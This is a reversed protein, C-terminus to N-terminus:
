FCKQRLSLLNCTNGMDWAQPAPTLLPFSKQLTETINGQKGLPFLWEMISTYTHNSPKLRQLKVISIEQEEPIHITSRILFWLNKDQFTLYCLPNPLSSSSHTCCPEAPPISTALPFDERKKAISFVINCVKSSQPFSTTLATIIHWVKEISSFHNKIENNKIYLATEEMQFCLHWRGIQWPM